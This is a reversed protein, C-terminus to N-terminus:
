IYAKVNTAQKNKPPLVESQSVGEEDEASKFIDWLTWYQSMQNKM